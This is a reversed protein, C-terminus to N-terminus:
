ILELVIPRYRTLDTIIKAVITFWGFDLDLFLSDRALVPFGANNRYVPITALILLSDQPHCVEQVCLSLRSNKEHVM